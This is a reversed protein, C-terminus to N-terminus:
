EIESLEEWTEKISKFLIKVSHKEDHARDCTTLTKCNTIADHFM